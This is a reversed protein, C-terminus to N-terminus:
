VSKTLEYVFFSVFCEGLGPVPLLCRTARRLPSGGFGHPESREIVLGALRVYREFGKRTLRNLFPHFQQRHRWKNPKKDGTEPDRDWLRPVFDPADYLEACARFMTRESFILHAWPLPILSEMHHGFPGRWPSSWIWVRGGPQLMRYWEHVVSPVNAVHELADFCCILGISASEIPVPKRVDNRIFRIRGSDAPDLTGTSATAREIARESLDVGTVQRPKHKALLTCLEGTGCGFDLVNLGAIHGTHFHETLQRELERARWNRYQDLNTTRKLDDPQHFTSRRQALRSAHYLLWVDPHRWPSTWYQRSSAAVSAALDAM